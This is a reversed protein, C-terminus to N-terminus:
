ETEELRVVEVQVRPSTPSVSVRLYHYFAKRQPHGYLPAGAGGTIYYHTGNRLADDYSHIHGAFVYDVAYAQMRAMFPERSSGMIHDGGIPDFPPHHVFVMILDTSARPALDADLWELQEPSLNGASSNLIVFHVGGYDFTYYPAPPALISLFNDISSDLREHNGPVVIVRIPYEAMLDRVHELQAIEGQHVIDGTNIVFAAGEDVARRLIERYIEDGGRSDGCVVFTFPPLPTPSPPSTPTPPAATASPATIVNPLLAQSPRTDTPVPLPTRSPPATNTPSPLPPLTAARTPLPSRDICASLALSLILLALTLSTFGAYLSRRRNKVARVHRISM